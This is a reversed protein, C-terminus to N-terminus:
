VRRRAKSNHKKVSQMTPITIIKRGREAQPLQPDVVKVVTWLVAPHVQLEVNLPYGKVRLLLGELHQPDTLLSLHM